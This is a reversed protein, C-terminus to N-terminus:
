SYVIPISMRKLLYNQSVPRDYASSYFHVMDIGYVSIFEFHILSEFSLGLVM